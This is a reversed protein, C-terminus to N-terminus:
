TRYDVFAEDRLRRLWLETEEDAKSARIQEFAKRKREDTSMDQTRRGLVQAVHWGYQTHFPQSIENEALAALTQEFEPVFTGATTWGLDGGESGSGPDESVAKAIAGFDDAGSAIRDRIVQLRGRVTEDDQLENTKVLIHRAHVQEVLLPKTDSRMDNLRIIHFGSPTRVPHSVEGPKLEGVVEAMFSPLESGKRWGIQGRELASQAQSNAVALQGFDEGASARQYIEEAHKEVQELQGPSAAEPLSLLIHSVDYEVAGSKNAAQKALFQDLERPSVYIRVYVDRQRLLSLTMERRMQERYEAYVIGEAGLADPLQSFEIKNQKAIERLSNNLAEDTVRLGIKQARQLEIEQLILRETIQQRLISPAPLPTGQDRLRRTIVIVQADIQSQLVVGDNVVVAIRDLLDGKGGLERTQAHATTAAVASALLVLKLYRHM